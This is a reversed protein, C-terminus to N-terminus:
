GTTVTPTAVYEPRARRGSRSAVIPWRRGSRPHEISQGAQRRQGEQDVARSEHAGLDVTAGERGLRRLPAAHVAGHGPGTRRRHVGGAAGDPRVCVGRRALASRAQVGPRLMPRDQGSSARRCAAAPSGARRGRQRNRRSSSSSLGSTKPKPSASSPPANRRSASALGTSNGHPSLYYAVARDMCVAYRRKGKQILLTVARKMNCCCVIAYRLAFAGLSLYGGASDSILLPRQM